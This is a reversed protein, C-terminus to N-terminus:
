ATPKGKEWDKAADRTTRRGVQRIRGQGYKRRLEGERRDLDNTIGSHQIRGDSDVYQYKYTDRPAGVTEEQARSFVFTFTPYRSRYSPRRSSAGHVGVVPAVPRQHHQRVPHQHVAGQSVGDDGAQPIAVAADDWLQREARVGHRRRRDREWREGGGKGVEM